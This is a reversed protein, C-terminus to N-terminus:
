IKLAVKMLMLAWSLLSRFTKADLKALEKGLEAAIIQTIHEIESTPNRLIGIATRM